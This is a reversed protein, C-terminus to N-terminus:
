PAPSAPAETAAVEAEMRKREAAEAPRRYHADRGAENIRFRYAGNPADRDLLGRAYLSQLTATGHGRYLLTGMDM